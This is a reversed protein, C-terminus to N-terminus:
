DRQRLATELGIETAVGFTIGTPTDSVIVGIAIGIASSALLVVGRQVL